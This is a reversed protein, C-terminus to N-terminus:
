PHCHWLGCRLYLKGCRKSWTELGFYCCLLSFDEKLSETHDHHSDQRPLIASRPKYVVATFHWPQRDLKNVSAMALSSPVRTSDRLTQKLADPSSISKFLTLLLGSIKIWIAKSLEEAHDENKPPPPTLYIKHLLMCFWRFSGNTKPMKISFSIVVTTEYSAKQSVSNYSGFVGPTQPLSHLPRQWRTKEPRWRNTTCQYACDLDRERERFGSKRKEREM